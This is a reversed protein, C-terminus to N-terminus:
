PSRKTSVGAHRKCGEGCETSATVYKQSLSLEMTVFSVADCFYLACSHDLPYRVNELAVRSQFKMSHLIENAHQTPHGVGVRRVGAWCM